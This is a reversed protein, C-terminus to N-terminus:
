SYFLKSQGVKLNDLYSKPHVALLDEAQAENPRVVSDYDLMGADLIAIMLFFAQGRYSNLHLKFMVAWTLVCLNGLHM